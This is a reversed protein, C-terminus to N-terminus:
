ELSDMAQSPRLSGKFIETQEGSFRVSQQSGKRFVQQFGDAVPSLKIANVRTKEGIIPAGLCRQHDRPSHSLLEERGAIALDVILRM